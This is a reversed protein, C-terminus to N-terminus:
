TKPPPARIAAELDRIYKAGTQVQPLMKSSGLQTLEISTLIASLGNKTAAGPLLLTIFVAEVFERAGICKQEGLAALLAGKVDAKQISRKLVLSVRELLKGGEDVHTEVFKAYGELHQAHLPRTSGIRRCLLTWPVQGGAGQFRAADKHVKRIVQFTSEQQAAAQGMNYSEQVYQALRPAGRFVEKRIVTYLVGQEVADAYPPSRERLKALSLKGGLALLSQLEAELTTCGMAVAGFTFTTHSGALAAIKLRDADLKPLLGDSDESLSANM